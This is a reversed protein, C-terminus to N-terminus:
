DEDAAREAQAITAEVEALHERPIGERMERLQTRAERGTMKAKALEVCILCM